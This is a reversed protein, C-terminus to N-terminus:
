MYQLGSPTTVVGPKSKNENLFAEGIKKNGSSKEAKSKQMYTIICQNAQQEDLLLKGKKNVDNIARTVMATNIDTINQQRYFNAVSLGIAYSLSDQISKLTVTSAPKAATTGGTHSATAPKKA